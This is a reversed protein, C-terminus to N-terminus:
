PDVYGIELTDGDTNVTVPDVRTLFVEGGADYIASMVNESEPDDDSSTIVAYEPKTVALLQEMLPEEKGHHPVKILEYDDKYETIYDAIRDTEIDGAFLMDTEKDHVAVVLSHNNSTDTPYTRHPPQVIYEVGDLTFSIDEKVTEPEIGANNVAKLYNECEKSDKMYDNQLIRGVKVKNIVKAAGGVHDKDFHTVILCDLSSIGSKKLHDVITKGYSKLGCDILVASNKTRLLIADAKGAQFFYVSLEAGAASSEANGAKGASVSEANGASVSGPNGASVGGPACGCPMLVALILLIVALAKRYNNGTEKKNSLM